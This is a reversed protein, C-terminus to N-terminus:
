DPNNPNDIFKKQLGYFSQGSLDFLHKFNSGPSSHGRTRWSYVLEGSTVGSNEGRAIRTAAVLLNRFKMFNKSNGKNCESFFADINKKVSPTLVPYNRFGEIVRGSKILGILSKDNKPVDLLHPHSFKFRNYLAQRMYQMSKVADNENYGEGTPRKTEALLVLLMAKQESTLNEPMSVSSLVEVTLDPFCGSFHGNAPLCSNLYKSSKSTSERAHIIVIGEKIATIRISQELQKPRSSQSVSVIGPTSAGLVLHQGDSGFGNIKLYLSEKPTLYFHYNILPNKSARTSIFIDGKAM